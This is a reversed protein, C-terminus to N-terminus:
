ENLTFYFTAGEGVKGEAWIKGGHRTVIRHVIALGVGTGEFEEQRHLRNFVGFLKNYYAMDFGAGNDRVFYIKRSGEEMAGIWLEPREKKSSYKIANSILNQFVQHMLVPDAQVTGLMQDDLHLNLNDDNLEKIVDQVVDNLHVTGMNLSRKGMRSFELLDDVLQGMKKANGQIIEILRKGEDELKNEYDEMLMRAYGNIARLPARLDHSVTYSFSELEKNTLQLEQTRQMVRVELNRNLEHLEQEMRRRESIDMIYAVGQMENDNGLVAAALLVPVRTGDKRFYEKEFPKSVGSEALEKLAQTDLDNYEPPTMDRWSIRGLQLDERTYGVIALFEDNADLIDGNVNWFLLGIIGSEFIKRFKSDSLRRAEEAKQKATVDVALVMWANGGEMPSASLDAYIEAGDPRTFKWGLREKRSKKDGDDTLFTRWEDTTYIDSAKMTLLQKRTLGYIREAAKNVDLLQLSENEVIWKPMPSAEFLMRYKTESLRLETTREAVRKELSQNLKLIEKEAKKRDAIDNFAALAYILEGESDLVPVGWVELPVRRNGNDVELDELYLFEKKTFVQVVPLEENPYLDDSGVRYVKYIENLQDLGKEPMIGQGLIEKSKKNAYTPIGKADIAFIGIPLNELVLDMQRHALEIKHEALKRDTIDRLFSVFEYGNKTKVASINLEVDLESGDKRLAPLELTKNLVQGEGTKLFNAMGALHRHRLREPIIIEHIPRGVAEEYTWGFLKEATLNWRIVEGKPDIVIVADPASRFLTEVQEENDKLGQIHYELEEAMTNMGAALADVEDGSESIAAKSSFDMTTYRLMVEMLQEIRSEREQLRKEKHQLEDALVNLSAAIADIEDMKTSVDVYHTYEGAALQNLQRLIKKIRVDKKVVAKM